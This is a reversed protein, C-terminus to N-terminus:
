EDFEVVGSLVLAFLREKSEGAKDEGQPSNPKQDCSAM